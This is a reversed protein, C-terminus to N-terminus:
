MIISNTGTSSSSQPNVGGVSFDFGLDDSTSWEERRLSLAM